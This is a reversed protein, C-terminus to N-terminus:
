GGLTIGPSIINICFWFEMLSNTYTDIRGPIITHNQAVSVKIGSIFLLLLLVLGIVENSSVGHRGATIYGLARRVLPEGHDRELRAFRLTGLKKVGDALKCM